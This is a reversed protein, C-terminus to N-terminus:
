SKTLPAGHGAHCNSVFSVSGRRWLEQIWLSSRAESSNVSASSLELTELDRPAPLQQVHVSSVPFCTRTILGHKECVICSHCFLWEPDQSLSVMKDDRGASRAMEPSLHEHSGWFWSPLHLPPAALQRVSPGAWTIFPAVLFRTGPAWAAWAGGWALLCAPM